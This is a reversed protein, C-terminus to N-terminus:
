YRISLAVDNLPSLVIDAFRRHNRSFRPQDLVDGILRLLGRYRSQKLRLVRNFAHMGLWLTDAPSADAEGCTSRLMVYALSVAENVISFLADPLKNRVSMRCLYAHFKKACVLMHQYLNLLMTTHSNFACDMFLRNMRPRVAKLMRQRLPCGSVRSTNIRLGQDIGAQRQAMPSFDIMVDLTQDNILKGCWAFYASQTRGVSRTGLVLDFNVLSKAKNLRCGYEPVGKYLREVVRAVQERSTSILVFDDILRMMLTDKADFLPLLHDRELQAYFFNCLISSLVSGQPIGTHQHFLRSSTCVFNQKVHKVILDVMDELSISSTESWDGYVQQKSRRSLSRVTESFKVTEASPLANQVYRRSMDASLSVFWYKYVTFAQGPNTMLYDRLLELLKDQNITDFARRVDLKAMYLKPKEKGAAFVRDKFEKLKAHIEDNCSVASGTIGLPYRARLHRLVAHAETLVRNSTSTQYVVRKSKKGNTETRFFFTKKMNAIVRFSNEKPLLRIRSFEMNAGNFAGAVDKTPRSEFIDSELARWAKRAFNLWVDNRFYHLKYGTHAAETVYFFSRVLHVVYESLIWYVLCSYITFEEDNSVDGCSQIWSRVDNVQFRLMAEHIAIQEYAGSKIFTRLLKYLERHNKAGGILDRPIVHQICLQLFRYVQEATSAAEVLNPADGALTHISHASSPLQSHPVIGEVEVPCLVPSERPTSEPTPISLGVSSIISNGSTDTSLSKSSNANCEQSIYKAGSEWNERVQDMQSDNENQGENKGNDNDNNSDDDYDEDDSLKDPYACPISSIKSGAQWPAPCQRFLHFRYNFKKHLSLMRKALDYMKKSPQDAFWAPAKDFISRLLLEPTHCRNLPFSQPLRWKANSSPRGDKSRRRKTDAPTCYLMTRRTAYVAHPSIPQVFREPKAFDTTDTARSRAVIRSKKAKGEICDKSPPRKLLRWDRAKDIYRNIEPVVTPAPAPKELNVLAPGSIQNYNGNPMPLFVSTEKLMRGLAFNGVRELLTAWNRNNLEVMTSNVSHNSLGIAGRVSNRADADKLGYGMALINRQERAKRSAYKTQKVGFTKSERHLLAQIVQIATSRVTGTPEEFVCKVQIHDHGVMTTNLFQKFEATDDERQCKNDAVLSDMYQRLTSLQPFLRALLSQHLM